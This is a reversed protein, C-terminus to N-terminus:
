PEGEKTVRLFEGYDRIYDSENYPLSALVLSIAGSSFNGLDRWILRPITLGQHARNLTISKKANGDDLTVDISGMICILLQQLKHHAHAGRSEGAPLDYLYYVRQIEFPVEKKGHVATLKGQPRSVWPFEIIKCDQITSM